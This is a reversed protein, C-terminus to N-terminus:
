NGKVKAMITKAGKVKDKVKVVVSEVNKKPIFLETRSGFKIMGIRQGKRVADGPKVACVIRRALIGSVQRVLMRVSGAVMGIANSENESSAEPVSAVLFKGKRYDTWEVKGELPARNIHVNFVSLFIAM